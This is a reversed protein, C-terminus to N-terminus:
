TSSSEGSGSSKEIIQLVILGDDLFIRHGPKVVDPFAPYDVSIIEDNGEVEATTLRVHKGKELKTGEKEMSGIRIKPGQLDQIIPCHYGTKEAARRLLKIYEGHTEHDGHSFNLRAASM